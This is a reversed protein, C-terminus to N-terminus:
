EDETDSDLLHDYATKQRPGLDIRSFRSAAARGAVSMFDKPVIVSTQGKQYTLVVRDLHRFGLQPNLYLAGGSRLPEGLLWEEFPKLPIPDATLINTPRSVGKLGGLRGFRDPLVILPWDKYPNAEVNYTTNEERTTTVRDELDLLLADGQDTIRAVVYWVGDRTVIDGREM